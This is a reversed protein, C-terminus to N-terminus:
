TREELVSSYLNRWERYKREDAYLEARWGREAGIHVFADWISGLDLAFVKKYAKHIAQTIIAAPMGASVLYVRGESYEGLAAKVIMPLASMINPFGIEIFSDYRLFRLKRLHRNSIITVDMNQLQQIFPTLIGTRVADDWMDKEVFEIGKGFTQAALMYNPGVESVHTLIEPTSFLYDPHRYKLCKRLKNQLEDTFETGQCNYEGTRLGRVADWEGDGFMGMSFYERRRLRNVYWTLPYYIIKM